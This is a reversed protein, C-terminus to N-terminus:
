EPILPNTGPHDIGQTESPRTRRGKLPRFDWRRISCSFLVSDRFTTWCDRLSVARGEVTLFVDVDQDTWKSKQKNKQKDDDDDYRDHLQAM